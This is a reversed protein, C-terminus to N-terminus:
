RRHGGIGRNGNPNRRRRRRHRTKVPLWGGIDPQLKTDQDDRACHGCQYFNDIECITDCGIQMAHGGREREKRRGFHTRSKQNNSYGPGHSNGPHPVIAKRSCGIVASVIEDPVLGEDMGGFISSAVSVDRYTNIGSVVHMIVNERNRADILLTGGKINGTHKVFTIERTNKTLIDSPNDESRIYVVIIEGNQVMERVHHWKIDIHKTRQGVQDNRIVYIAGQNDEHLTAPEGSWVKLEGLLMQIFKIETACMSAAMYEAETSSLTISPQGKSTWGVLCNGVLTLYGTISKRNEKNTAYDSDVFGTVNLDDPKRYILGHIKTGKLYGVVRALSKWHEDNPNDMFSALERVANSVEPYTKKMAFMLKGLISRYESIRVTDGENRTLTKGPYGPSDFIKVQGFIKEYSEVIDKMYDDQHIRLTGDDRWEYSVGLFKSLKGEDKISLFKKIAEKIRTVTSESGCILCDDVHIAMAAELEGKSDLSYLVCPDAKSQIMGVGSSTLIKIFTKYFARPAQVLGYMAKELFLVHEERNLEGFFMEYGEPIRIWTPEDLKAELFATEVDIVHVVWGKNLSITVLSRISTDNATPAFSDQYDVGPIQAYGQVVLRGRYVVRGDSKHKKAYVWRTGLINKGRPVESRKVVRYVSRKVFNDYETKMGEVWKEKEVSAMAKKFNAPVGPDSALAASMVLDSLHLVVNDNSTDNADNRRNFDAPVDYTEVGLRTLERKQSANLKDMETPVFTVGTSRTYHKPEVTPLVALPHDRVVDPIAEDNVDLRGIDLWAQNTERMEYEFDESNVGTVHQFGDLGSETASAEDNMYPPLRTHSFNQANTDANTDQVNRGASATGFVNRGAKKNEYEGVSLVGMSSVDDDHMKIPMNDLASRGGHWNAWAVDRTTIVGGSDWNYMRVTDSSSNQAPGLYLCKFSKDRSKAKIKTRDTVYGIRGFPQLHYPLKSVMGTYLEYPSKDRTTPTIVNSIITATRVAETWFAEQLEDNLLSDRIMIQAMQRVITIAREVVGNFQPTDTATFEIQIGEKDCVRQVQKRNEGANDCRIYKCKLDFLKMDKLVKTLFADIANKKLLFGSTRYRSYDDTAMVWYTYGGMAPAFPGTIDLFMREGPKTANLRTQKRVGKARAKVKLCSDCPQLEGFLKWDLSRATKRLLTEGIHGFIRHVHNIDARVGTVAHIYSAEYPRGELTYLDGDRKFKITEIGTDERIAVIHDETMQINHGESILQTLSIINRNLQPVYLCDRLVLIEKSVLEIEVDGILTAKIAEDNAVRITRETPRMNGVTYREDNCVHVTAGSDGLWMNITTGSDDVASVCGDVMMVLAEREATKKLDTEEDNVVTEVRPGDIDGVSEERIIGDNGGDNSGDVNGSSSSIDGWCIDRFSNICEQSQIKVSTRITEETSTIRAIGTDAASGGSDGCSLGVQSGTIGSGLRVLSPAIVDDLETGLEIRTRARRARAKEIVGQTGIEIGTDNLNSGGPMIPDVHIGSGLEAASGRRSPEVGSIREDHDIGTGTPTVIVDGTDRSTIVAEAIGTGTPTVIGDGNPSETDVDAEILGGSTGLGIGVEDQVGLGIGFTLNDRVKDEPYDEEYCEDLFPRGKEKKEVHCRWNDWFGEVLYPKYTGYAGDHGTLNEGFRSQAKKELPKADDSVVPDYHQIHSLLFTVKPEKEKEEAIKKRCESEIHGKKKCYNCSKVAQTNESPGKQPCDGEKHGTQQCKWCKGKFGRTADAGVNFVQFPQARKANHNALWYDRIHSKVKQILDEVDLVTANAVPNAIATGTSNAVNGSSSNMSNVAIEMMINMSSVTHKYESPLKSLLISLEVIPDIVMLGYSNIEQRMESLENFWVAPDINFDKLYLNNYQTILSVMHRYTRPKFTDELMKWARPLDRDSVTDVIDEAKGKCAMSLYNYGQCARKIIAKEADTNADTKVPVTERGELIDLLDNLSAFNKFKRAWRKYKMDDGDFLPLAKLQSMTEGSM